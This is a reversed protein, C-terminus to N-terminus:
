LDAHSAKGHRLRAGGRYDLAAGHFTVCEDSTCLSKREYGTEEDAGKGYRPAYEPCRAGGAIMQLATQETNM